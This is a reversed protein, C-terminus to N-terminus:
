TTATSPRSTTAIDAFTGFMSRFGNGKDWNEQFVRRREEDSVTGAEVGSEQFGFAVVSNRVQDWIADFDQRTEAVEAADVPGNGSPVVYQPSRQFM